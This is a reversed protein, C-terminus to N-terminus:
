GINAHRGWLQEATKHEDSWLAHFLADFALLVCQEFLSGSYQQTKTATHDQKTAAPLVLVEDSLSSLPSGFEATVALVKAGVRKATHGAGVVSPTTGSGSVGILLDGSTIAPATVEGAVHVQLGLHMLRMAAMQAALGSRGNGIVFITSAASILAGSRDWDEAAISTLLGRTETLVTARADNFGGVSRDVLETM